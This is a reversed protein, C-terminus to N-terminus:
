TAPHADLSSALGASSPRITAPSRRRTLLAEGERVKVTMGMRRVRDPETAVGLVAATRDGHTAM